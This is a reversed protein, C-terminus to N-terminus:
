RNRQLVEEVKALLQEARVPKSLTDDAGLLKAMGLFQTGFGGSIAIIRTGPLEKRIDRITEIGEKGPMVLDLLVLGIGGERLASLAKQGDAAEVVEYGGQELVTRLLARVEREDDAVLIRTKTQPAGLVERVKAALAEPRFPKELFHVKPDLVGNSSLANDTYGSMFLFKMGPHAETVLGALEKGGLRPMVVDTVILDIDRGLKSCIRLGEEGNLAELVQYGYSRLAEVAFFRVEPQDEVVLITETGRAMQPRNATPPVAETTAEVCPLFVKFTSGLGPESVVELHGGSQAVVGQVTSLGLGTGKGVAKTTFFPEFIRQRTAEDMGLGSDCVSLVVYNRNEWDPHQELFSEDPRSNATEIVLRGGTPMADRANVVLNLIVQEIQHPDARVTPETADLVEQLEVDEGVLRELMPQMDAVLRNVDLDRPQLVQKRSLALLQRTLAAAREGAKNIENVSARMPDLPSLKGLLLQSHGNIVTLMNNFDHAVGGALRGISEMKQAQFLQQELELRKAEARKRERIDRSISALAIPVGADDHILFATMESDILESTQINYLRIEGSWFGTENILPRITAEVRPRDEPAFFDVVPRGLITELSEAGLLALGVENMYTVRSDLTAMAVCERSKAALSALKQIEALAEVSATVDTVAGVIRAPRREAGEGSFAAQARTRLWRISGDPLLLRHEVDWRGDGMPDETRQM